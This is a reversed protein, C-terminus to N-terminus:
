RGCPPDGEARGPTRVVRAEPLEALSDGLGDPDAEDARDAPRQLGFPDEVSEQPEDPRIIWMGTGRDDEDEEAERMRPRRRMEAVRQRTAQQLAEDATVVARGAIRDHLPVPRGWYPAPAVHTYPREPREGSPLASAWELAASVTTCVPVAAFRELPDQSLFNRFSAELEDDRGHRNRAGGRQALASRRATRLAPVLGPAQRVIWEDVAAADALLFRDRVEGQVIGLTLEASGRTLRVAQEVAHLLYVQFAVSTGGTADVTPPLYIGVGDTGAAIGGREDVGRGALRALWSVPAAADAAAVTLPREFLATLFLEIRVRVDALRLLRDPPAPAYRRWAARALRSAMHAGDIILDEPEAM